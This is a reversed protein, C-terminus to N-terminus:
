TESSNGGQYWSQTKPAEQQAEQFETDTRKERSQVEHM